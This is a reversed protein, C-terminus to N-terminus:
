LMKREYTTAKVVATKATLKTHLAMLGEGVALMVLGGIAQVSSETALGAYGLIGGALVLARRVLWFIAPTMWVAFQKVQESM